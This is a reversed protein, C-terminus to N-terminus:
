DLEDRVVVDGEHACSSHSTRASPAPGRMVRAWQTVGVCAIVGVAVVLMSAGVAEGFFLAAWGITLLPQALQVQSARAVGALALGRNWAFFGFLVSVLSLYLFGAWATTGPHPTWAFAAYTAVPVTVPLAFLLAWCIVQWGPMVQSLRGSEAYGLAAVIIAALLMLDATSIGGGGRAVLFVRDSAL